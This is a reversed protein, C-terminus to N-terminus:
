ATGKRELLERICDLAHRCAAREETGSTPSNATRHIENVYGYRTTPDEIRRWQEILGRAYTSILVYPTVPFDGM